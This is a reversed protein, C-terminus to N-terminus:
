QCTAIGGDVDVLLYVLEVALHRLFFTDGLQLTEVHIIKEVLLSLQIGGFATLEYGVADAMERLESHLLGGVRVGKAVTHGGNLIPQNVVSWVANGGEKMFFHQRTHVGLTRGDIRLLYALGTREVGLQGFQLGELGTGGHALYATHQGERGHDIYAAIGTEVTQFFRITFITIEGGHHTAGEDLTQLM